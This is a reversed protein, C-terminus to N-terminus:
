TTLAPLTQVMDDVKKQIDSATKMLTDIQSKVNDMTTVKAKSQKLLDDKKHMLEKRKQDLRQREALEFSLRKLMLQHENERVEDTRSEEPALEFFEEVSHLSVDQYISAFQRCKEIERELHRKEYQLNQLGLHTHDMETRADATAQKRTRTAANAVRNLAKLRAFLAAARVQIIAPDSNLNASGVLTRLQDIVPDANPPLPLEDQIDSIDSNLVITM